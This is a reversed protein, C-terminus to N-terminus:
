PIQDLREAVRSVGARSRRALDRDVAVEVLSQLPHDFGDVVYTNRGAALALMEPELRM